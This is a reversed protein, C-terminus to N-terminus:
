KESQEVGINRYCELFSDTLSDWMYQKAITNHAAEKLSNKQEVTIGYVKEAWAQPEMSELIYGNRNDEVLTSSGGNNTTLVVTRYFMAELLVMGFIEYETPLLFFDALSYVKSLYKQEIQEQYVINNWVGLENAYSKCKEMYEKDGTGIM